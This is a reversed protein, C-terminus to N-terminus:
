APCLGDRTAKSGFHSGCTAVCQSVPLRGVVNAVDVDVQLGAHIGVACLGRRVQQCRTGGEVSALTPASALPQRRRACCRVSNGQLDLRRRRDRRSRNRHIYSGNAGRGSYLRQRYKRPRDTCVRVACEHISVVWIHALEIERKYDKRAKRSELRRVSTCALSSLLV